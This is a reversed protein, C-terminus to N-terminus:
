KDETSDPKNRTPIERQGAAGFYRDTNEVFSQDLLDSLNRQKLVPAGELQKNTMNLVAFVNSGEGKRIKIAHWPVAIRSDGINLVGGHSLIAYRAHHKDSFVIDSVQALKTSDNNEVNAKLFQSAYFTAHDKSKVDRRSDADVSADRTGLEKHEKDVPKTAGFFTYVGATWEPAWREYYNAKQFSPASEFKSKAMDIRAIKANDSEECKVAAVPVAIYTDGVGLAGGHGVIYFQTHGMSNMLLDSIQGLSEDAKNKVTTGIIESARIVKDLKAGEVKSGEPKSGTESKIRDDARSVSVGFLLGAALLSAVATRM